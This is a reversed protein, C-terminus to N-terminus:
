PAAADCQCEFSKAELGVCSLHEHCQKLVEARVEPALTPLYAQLRETRLQKHAASLGSNGFLGAGKAYPCTLVHKHAGTGCDTTCYACFGCNCHSCTLTCNGHLEGWAMGCRPCKLTLLETIHKRAARVALEQASLRQREQVERQVRQEIDRECDANLQSELVSQKANTYAAFAAATGLTAITSDSYPEAQCGGPRFPCCIHGGRKVLEAISEGSQSNICNVFCDGCLFHSIAAAGDAGGQGGSPCFVGGSKKCSELCIQCEALTTLGELQATLQGMLAASASALTQNYGDL